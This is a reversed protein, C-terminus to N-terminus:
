KEWEQRYFDEKRVMANSVSGCIILEMLLCMGIAPLCIIFTAVRWPCLKRQLNTSM